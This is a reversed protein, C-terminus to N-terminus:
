SSFIILQEMNEPPSSYNWRIVARASYVIAGLKFHGRHRGHVRHGGGGRAELCGIVATRYIATRLRSPFPSFQHFYGLIEISIQSVLTNYIHFGNLKNSSPFFFSSVRGEHVFSRVFSTMETWWPMERRVSFALNKKHWWEKAAGQWATDFSKM